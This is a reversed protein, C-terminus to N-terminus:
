HVNLPWRYTNEVWQYPYGELLPTDWEIIKGFGSDFKVVSTKGWTYFVMIELQTHQQLLKFVSAYYQIPHTTIIALRM